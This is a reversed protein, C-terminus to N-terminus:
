KANFYSHVHRVGGVGAPTLAQLRAKALSTVIEDAEDGSHEQIVREIRAIEQRVATQQEIKYWAKIEALEQPTPADQDGVLRLRQNILNACEARNRREEDATLRGTEKRTANEKAIKQATGAVYKLPDKIDPKQALSDIAQYVPECDCQHFLRGMLAYVRKRQPGAPYKKVMGPVELFADGLMGIIERVSTPADDGLTKEGETIIEQACDNQNKIVTSQNSKPKPGATESVFAPDTDSRLSSVSENEATIETTTEPSNDVVGLAKVSITNLLNESRALNSVHMQENQGFRDTWDSGKSRNMKVLDDGFSIEEIQENQGSRDTWLRDLEAYNITYWNTHDLKDQNHKAVIVVKQKQLSKLTRRITSESWFPFQRKWEPYSNYIWPVGDIMTRSTRQLWYHIQQLIIAENLGIMEALTPLVILPYEDLLLRRGTM